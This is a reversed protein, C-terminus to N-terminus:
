LTESRTQQAVTSSTGTKRLSSAKAGDRLDGDAREEGTALLSGGSFPWVGDPTILGAEVPNGLIYRAIPLVDENRSLAHDYFSQQWTPKETTGSLRYGSRQKFRQLFRLLDAHAGSGQVLAHVHDPMVCYVLLDFSTAAAAGELDDVTLRAADSVLIPRRAHTVVTIHYAFNGHYDFGPLRPRRRRPKSNKDAITM